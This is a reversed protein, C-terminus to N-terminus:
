CIALMYSKNESFRMDELQQSQEQLIVFAAAVIRSWSECNGGRFEPLKSNIANKMKGM